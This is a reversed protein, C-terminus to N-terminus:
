IKNKFCKNEKCFNVLKSWSPSHPNQASLILDLQLILISVVRNESIIKPVVIWGMFTVNKSKKKKAM